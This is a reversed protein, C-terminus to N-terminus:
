RVTAPHSTVCATRYGRVMSRVIVNSTGVVSAKAASTRISPCRSTSAM